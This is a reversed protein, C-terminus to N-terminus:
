AKDDTGSGFGRGISGGNEFGTASGSLVMADEGFGYGFCGGHSTGYCSGTGSGYSTGSACGAGSGSYGSPTMIFSEHYVGYVKGDFTSGYGRNDPKIKAKHGCYSESSSHFDTLIM